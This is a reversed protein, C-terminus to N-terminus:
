ATLAPEDIGAKASMSHGHRAHHNIVIQSTNSPRIL